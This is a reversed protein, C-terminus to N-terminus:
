QVSQTDRQYTSIPTDPSEYATEIVNRGRAKATVRARVIVAQPLEEDDVSVVAGESSLVVSNTTLGM